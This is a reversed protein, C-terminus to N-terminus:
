LKLRAGVLIGLGSKLAAGNDQYDYHRLGLYVDTKLRDINQVFQFGASFSESDEANFNQGYYADLSIATKGADFHRFQYGLKGYVFHPDKQQDRQIGGAFTVSLGTAVDLVSFSGNLRDTDSDPQSFAVGGQLKLDEGAEDYILSLDWSTTKNRSPVIQTGVSTQFKFGNHFPKDYRLRLKRSLGDLNSFGDSVSIETLSLDVSRRFLQGAALDAVSSYGIVTTGSLDFESVGNSAMDGQGMWLTGFFEHSLNMELKRLQYADDWDIEDKNLQNVYSTSYPDYEAEYNGFITWDKSLKTSAKVGFRSSSNANDVFYSQRDKGDDYSLIGRNIQAYPEINREPNKALKTLDKSIGESLAPHIGLIALIFMVALHTLQKM